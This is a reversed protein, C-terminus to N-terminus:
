GGTRPLYLIDELVGYPQGYIYGWLHLGMFTVRYVRSQYAAKITGLREQNYTCTKNCDKDCATLLRAKIIHTNSKLGM